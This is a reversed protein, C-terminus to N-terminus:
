PAAPLWATLALRWTGAEALHGIPRRGGGAVTLPLWLADAPSRGGCPHATAIPLVASDAHMVLANRISVERTSTPLWLLLPTHVGTADALLRYGPLKAAVRHAPETDNDYELAGLRAGQQGDGGPGGPTGGGQGDEGEGDGQGQGV